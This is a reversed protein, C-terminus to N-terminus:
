LLPGQAVQFQGTVRWVGEQESSKSQIKCMHTFICKIDNKDEGAAAARCRGRGSFVWSSIGHLQRM